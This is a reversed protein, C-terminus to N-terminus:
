NESCSYSLPKIKKCCIEKVARGNIIEGPELQVDVM